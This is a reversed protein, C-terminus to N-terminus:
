MLYRLCTVNSQLKKISVDEERSKAKTGYVDVLNDDNSSSSMNSILTFYSCGSRIRHTQNKLPAFILWPQV